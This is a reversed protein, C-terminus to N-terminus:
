SQAEIIRRIEDRNACFWSYLRKAAMQGVVADETQTEFPKATDLKPVPIQISASGTAKRVSMEGALMGSLAQNMEFVRKGMGGIELDVSGKGLKHRFAIKSWRASPKFTVWTAANGEPHPESMGLEPINKTALLWYDRWFQGTVSDVSLAAQKGKAIAARLLSTKYIARSGLAAQNSFWQLIKEYSLSSDFEGSRTARELYIAPAILVTFCRACVNNACYNEGRVRYRAAQQPQFSTDIKNEILVMIKADDMTTFALELDSEGNSQTVSRFAGNFRPESYKEPLTEDVFWRWFETESYFEELLLLDVDREQVGSIRVDAFERTM